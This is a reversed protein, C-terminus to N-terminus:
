MKNCAASEEVSKKSDYRVFSPIPAGAARCAKEWAARSENEASRKHSISCSKNCTRGGVAACAKSTMEGDVMIPGDIAQDPSVGEPLKRGYHRRCATLYYQTPDPTNLDCALIDAGDEHLIVWKADLCKMNCEVNSHCATGPAYKAALASSAFLAIIALFQMTIIIHHTSQNPNYPPLLEKIESYTASHSCSTLDLTPKYVSMCVGVNETSQNKRNM